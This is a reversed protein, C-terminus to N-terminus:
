KEIKVSRTRGDYCTGSVSGDKVTLPTDHRFAKDGQSTTVPDGGGFPYIDTRSATRVAWYKKGKVTLLEPLAKIADQGSIGQWGDRPKGHLDYLGLSNDKHLVMASYGKAGTFDYVDPGLRVEKGLEVPFPSVFRGLRDILYLKSGSAFLYQLKGNAYYDVEEVRGCLKGKFPVAWLSKGNEDRLSLSLNPAQTFQNMKGTGSNKVTFPGAPITLSTDTSAALASKVQAVRLRKVALTGTNGSLSFVFPQASIGELTKDLSKGMASEFIKGTMDRGETPSYWCLAGTTKPLLIGNDACYDKLTYKQMESDAFLEVTAKDAIVMWGDKWTFFSEDPASFLEGFIRSAYKKWAYPAAAAKYDKFGKASTGRLILDWDEKGPRLMVVPVLGKDTRIVAKVVERFDLRGAWKSPTVGTSDKTAKDAATWKNLAGDSDLWAQYAELYSSIDKVPLSVAFFTSAPLIGSALCEAPGSACVVSPYFKVEPSFWAQFEKDKIAWASWDSMKELFKWSDYYPKRLNGAAIKSAYGHNIFIADAGGAAAAARAFEPKELISVGGGLHRASSAILTESWSIEMLGVKYLSSTQPVTQQCDIIRCRLGLSDAAAMVAAMDYTTDRGTELIMLPMLEGSYHMSVVAPRNLPVDKIKDIFSSFGRKGNDTLLANLVKTSDTLLATLDKANNCALIMVADSPVAEFLGYGTVTPSGGRAPSGAGSGTDKYLAAVGVATLIGLLLIGCLCLILSKKNM